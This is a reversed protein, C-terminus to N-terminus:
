ETHLSYWYNGAMGVKLKVNLQLYCDPEICLICIGLCSHMTKVELFQSIEKWNWNFFSFTLILQKEKKSLQYCEKYSNMSELIM